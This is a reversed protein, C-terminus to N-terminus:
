RIQRYSFEIGLEILLRQQQEKTLKSLSNLATRVDTKAKQINLEDLYNYPM